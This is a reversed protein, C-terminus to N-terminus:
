DLWRRHRRRSAKRWIRRAERRLRAAEADEREYLVGYAFANEQALQAGAALDRLVGRTIVADQHEGLVAQLCALRRALRRAPPGFVPQVAEVAYRARKAAKRAEHLAVERDRGAPARRARRMRVRVRRGARAVPEALGAAAPRGAAATLPPAALLRDLEDLLAVYRDSDMAQLLAERAAAQLPAFHRQIRAAVPGMLLQPPTQRVRAALRDHLVEHDRAAGLVTGLWRLEDGLHRTDAPRLVAGFTQLTGRLRRTAVRMEHVADPEDRRVLPDLRGLARAQERLYALVVEAATSRRTLRNPGPFDRGAARPPLRDALARELKAAHGAPRLGGSRLRRDAAELLRLDGGTLEVEAEQWGSITAPRGLSQASVEDTVVEALSGGAADRLIRRHRVTTIRAVPQLPRGRAYGRVLGALEPPVVSDDGAELPRRLERRTDRGAPLKLHWGEDAGGRRRRLTVGALLLRLDGTDYYEADLMEEEPDSVSGVGPLDDLSPLTLVPSDAEYKRETERYETVMEAM